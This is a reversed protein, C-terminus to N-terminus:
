LLLTVLKLKYALPSNLVNMKKEGVQERHAERQEADTKSMQSHIEELRNTMKMDFFLTFCISSEEGVHNKIKVLLLKRLVCMCVSCLTNM